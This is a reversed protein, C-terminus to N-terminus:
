ETRMLMNRLTILSLHPGYVLIKSSKVDLRITPDWPYLFPFPYFNWVSNNGGQIYRSIFRPRELINKIKLPVDNIINGTIELEAPETLRAAPLSAVLAIATLFLVNSISQIELMRILVIAVCSIVAVWAIGRGLNGFPLITRPFCSPLLRVTINMFEPESTPNNSKVPM